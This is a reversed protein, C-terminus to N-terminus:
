GHELVVAYVCNFKVRLSESGIREPFCGFAVGFEGLKTLFEM